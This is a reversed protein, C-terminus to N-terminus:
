SDIRSVVAVSMYEMSNAVLVNTKRTDMYM